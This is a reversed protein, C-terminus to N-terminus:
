LSGVAKDCVFANQIEAGQLFTCSDLDLVDCATSPSRSEREVTEKGTGSRHHDLSPFRTAPPVPGTQSAIIAIRPSIEAM